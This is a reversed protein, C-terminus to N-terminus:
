QKIRSYTITKVPKSNVFYTQVVLEPTIFEGESKNPAKAANDIDDISLIVYKTKTTFWFAFSGSNDGPSTIRYKDINSDYVWLQRGEIATKGNAIYKFDCNVGDSTLKIDWVLATDSSIEGHWFGGIQKILEIQNLERSVSQSYISGYGTLLLIVVAAKLFNSNM